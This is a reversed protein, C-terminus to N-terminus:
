EVVRGRVMVWDVNELLTVDALPDGEVAIIDASMGPALRGIESEMGLVSAAVTTASAIAERSSMGGAVMLAFECDLIPKGTLAVSGKDTKVAVLRVPDPIRCARERARPHDVREADAIKSLQAMCGAAAPGAGIAASLAIASLLIKM